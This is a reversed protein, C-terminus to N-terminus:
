LYNKKIFRSLEVKFTNYGIINRDVPNSPYRKMLWWGLYRASLKMLYDLIM